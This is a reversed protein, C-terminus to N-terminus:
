NQARSHNIILDLAHESIIHERHTDDIYVGFTGVEALAQARAQVAPAWELPRLGWFCCPDYQNYIALQHRNEGAVGLLYLDLYEFEPYIGILWQEYDGMDNHEPHNPRPDLRQYMPVTGAVPYSQQIRTDIAAALVTTWGGGSIGVMINKDYNFHATYNLAVVVPEIFYRHATGNKIDLFIFHEHETLLLKGGRPTDIPAPLRNQNLLPMSFSLVAFGERLFFEIVKFDGEFDDAHGQHYIVLQNNPTQPQFHYVRSPIIGDMLILLEDIQRLNELDHYRAQAEPFRFDATIATPQHTPLQPEGWIAAILRPRQRSVDEDSRINILSDIDLPQRYPLPHVNYFSDELSQGQSSVM